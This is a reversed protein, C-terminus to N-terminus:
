YQVLTIAVALISQAEARVRRRRGELRLHFRWLTNESIRWFRDCDFFGLNRWLIQGQRRCGGSGRRNLGSKSLRCLDFCMRMAPNVM